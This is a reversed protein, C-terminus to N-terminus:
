KEDWKDELDSLLDNLEAEFQKTPTDKYVPKPSKDIVIVENTTEFLKACHCLVREAANKPNEPLVIVPIIPELKEKKKKM